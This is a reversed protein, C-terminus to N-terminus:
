TINHRFDSGFRNPLMKGVIQPPTHRIVANEVHKQLIQFFLCKLSTIKFVPSRAFNRSFILIKGPLPHMFAGKKKFLCYM